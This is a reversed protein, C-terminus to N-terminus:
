ADSDDKRGEVMLHNGKNVHMNSGGISRREGSHEAGGSRAIALEGDSRCRPVEITRRRVGGVRGVSGM